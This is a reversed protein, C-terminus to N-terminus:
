GLRYTTSHTNADRAIESANNLKTEVLYMIEINHERQVIVHGGFNAM